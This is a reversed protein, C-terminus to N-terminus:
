ILTLKRVVALVMTTYLLCPRVVSLGIDSWVDSENGVRGLFNKNQTFQGGDRSSGVSARFYTGAFDVAPAAYAVSSAMTAVAVCAALMTLKKM